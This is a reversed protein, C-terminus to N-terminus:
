NEILQGARILPFPTFLNWLMNAWMHGLPSGVAHQSWLMIANITRIFFHLFEYKFSKLETKPLVVQSYDLFFFESSRDKRWCNLLKKVRTFLSGMDLSFSQWSSAAFKKKLRLALHCIPCGQGLFWVWPFMNGGEDHPCGGVMSLGTVELKPFLAGPRM